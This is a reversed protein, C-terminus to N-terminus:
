GGLSVDITASSPELLLDGPWSATIVNTQGAVLNPDSGSITYSASCVNLGQLCPGSLTAATEAVGNVTFTIQGSPTLILGEGVTATLTASGNPDIPNASITLTTTSPIFPLPLLNAAQSASAAAGFAVAVATSSLGLAAVRRACRVASNRM